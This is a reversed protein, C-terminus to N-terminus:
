DNPRRRPDSQAFRPTAVLKNQKSVYTDSDLFINIDSEPDTAFGIHVIRAGVFMKPDCDIKRVRRRPQCPKRFGNFIRRM